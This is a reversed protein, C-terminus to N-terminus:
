RTIQWGRAQWLAPLQSLESFTTVQPHEVPKNHPDACFYFVEMGAAIGSQVGAVSDDVLICRQTNVGLAKAAHFMIAPEPKWSQIDYGSFL